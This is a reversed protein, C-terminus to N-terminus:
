FDELDDLVEDLTEESFVQSYGEVDGILGFAPNVYTTFPDELKAGGRHKLLQLSLENSSALVEDTYLAVVYYSARELSNIESLATLNYQGHNRAARLWGQRNAQSILYVILGKGDDYHISLSSFMEVVANMREDVSRAGEVKYNKFLQIYDVVLANLERDGIVTKLARKISHESIAGSQDAIDYGDLIWISGEMANFDTEVELLFQEDEESLFGKKIDMANLPKNPRLTYSHRSIFDIYLEEKQGELTIMAFNYGYDKANGYAISRALSTKFNSVFGFITCVKGKSVGSIENDLTDIFFRCGIPNEKIEKYISDISLIPSKVFQIGKYSLKDVTDIIDSVSISGASSFKLLADRLKLQEYEHTLMKIHPLLNHISDAPELDMTFKANIVTPTPFSGHEKYMEMVYNLVQFEPLEMPFVAHLKELLYFKEDPFDKLNYFVQRM